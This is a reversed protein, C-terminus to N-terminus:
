VPRLMVYSGTYGEATVNTYATKHINDTKNTSEFDIYYYRSTDAVYFPITVPVSPDQGVSIRYCYLWVGPNALNSHVDATNSSLAITKINNDACLVVTFVYPGLRSFKFGGNTTPGTITPNVGYTTWSATPNSAFLTYLNSTIEGAINGTWNATSNLTYTANLNMFLGSSAPVPDPTSISAVNLTSVNATGSVVLSGLTGVSTINPQAPQSVVLAVNANAVNGTIAAATLNAIGSGNTSILLGNVTLGTLSGLSTINPQAPQSVVLAVNANAVNGTIAAATLNAIGSGNTSSLLGNVTLGTLPGLSTINPHAPQSVVLAVNANAV